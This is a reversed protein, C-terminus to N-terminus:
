QTCWKGWIERYCGELASIFRGADTLLSNAMMERLTGRLHRLGETDNAFRLAITLYEEDAGAVLEPLGINTLLSMGVRSAHTNGALTIVPVGM